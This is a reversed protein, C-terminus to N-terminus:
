AAVETDRLSRGTLALFVDDLSGGGHRHKLEDPTGEAIIQGHDLVCLRDALRDAEDLYHTTIVVTTGSDKLSRVQEWLRARNQLDLGTTPEDLFLVKPRNALGLAIELRRRQGGSYTKVLRNAFGTLDFLAELGAARRIAEPRSLGYLRCALMLNEHGTAARDAGGPQGV